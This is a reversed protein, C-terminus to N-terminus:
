LIYINAQFISQSRGQQLEPKVKAGSFITMWFACIIYAKSPKTTIWVEANVAFVLFVKPSSCPTQRFQHDHNTRKVESLRWEEKECAWCECNLREPHVGM